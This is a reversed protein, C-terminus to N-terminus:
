WPPGRLDIVGASPPQSRVAILMVRNFQFPVSEGKQLTLVTGGFEAWGLRTYYDILGPECVLLGFDVMRASWTRFAERMVEAGHGRGRAEPHTKVGGVGGIAVPEGDALGERFVVAAYSALM